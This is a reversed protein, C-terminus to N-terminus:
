FFDDRVLRDLKWVVVGDASRAAAETILTEFGPRRARPQYAFADLDSLTAAVESNRAEAPGAPWRKAPPPM